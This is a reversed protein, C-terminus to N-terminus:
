GAVCECVCLRWTLISLYLMYKEACLCFIKHLIFLPVCYRVPEGKAGKQGTLGRPGQPGQPGSSGKFCVCVSNLTHSLEEFVCLSTFVLLKCCCSMFVRGCSKCQRKEM